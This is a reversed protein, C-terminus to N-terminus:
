KMLEIIETITMNNYDADLENLMNIKEPTDWDDEEFIVSEWEVPPTASTINGPIKELSFNALVSAIYRHHGDCILDNDVKIDPFKINALMKKVMRNIIPVCLKKHTSNLEIKNNSIFALILGKTIREL